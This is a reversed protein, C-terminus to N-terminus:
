TIVMSGPVPSMGPPSTVRARAVDGPPIHQDAPPAIAATPAPDHDRGRARVEAHDGVRTVGACAVLAQLLKDGSCVLTGDGGTAPHPGAVALAPGTEVSCSVGEEGFKVAM